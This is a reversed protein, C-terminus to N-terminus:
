LNLSRYETPTIGSHRKFQQIFYSSEKYGVTKAITGISMSTSRLLRKSAEMRCEAVIGVFNQGTKKRLMRSIYSQSLLFKESLDNLSIDNAYNENIYQVIKKCIGDLHIEVYQDADKATECLINSAFEIFRDSNTYNVSQAIFDTIKKGDDKRGMQRSVSLVLEYLVNRQLSSNCDIEVMLDYLYKKLLEVNGSYALEKIREISHKPINLSPLFGEEVDSFLVTSSGDFFDKYSLAKDAQGVSVYLSAESRSPSSIGFSIQEGLIELVAKQIKRCAHQVLFLCDEDRTDKDYILLYRPTNYEYVFIADLAGRLFIESSINEVAFQFLKRDKIEFTKPDAHLSVICYTGRPIEFTEMDSLLEEHNLYIGNFLGNVVRSRLYPFAKELKDEMQSYYLNRAKKVKIQEDLKRLMRGLSEYDLPKLIYDSAGQRLACQIYDFDDYGTLFIIAVDLCSDKIMRIMEMGDMEPMKIDTIIIDPKLTRALLLGENGNEGEGVLQCGYKEWPFSRLGEREITEDEVILVRGM